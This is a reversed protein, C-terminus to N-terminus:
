ELLDLLTRIVRVGDLQVDEKRSLYVPTIGMALAPKVDSTISDGVHIVEDPSAGAMELAKEFIERHPKGARVMEASVIGAVELGKEALSQEVYCLDDNTVVYVPLGVREIFPKVDDFLPAHIWVNRWIAHMHDLDGNLGYEEVCEHLIRDAKEDLGIYNDGVCNAEMEKIKTWVVRFAKEPTDLHSHAIFYRVLERTYPEDEQVMTGTYDLLIAKM